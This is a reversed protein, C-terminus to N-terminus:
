NHHRRERNSAPRTAAHVSWISTQSADMVNTHTGRTAICGAVFSLTSMGNCQPSFRYDWMKPLPLSCHIRLDETHSDIPGCITCMLWFRDEGEQTIQWSTTLMGTQTPASHSKCRREKQHVAAWVSQLLAAFQLHFSAVTGLLLWADSNNPGTHMRFDGSLLARVYKSVCPFVWLIWLGPEQWHADFLPERSPNSAVANGKVSLSPWCGTSLLRCCISVPLPQCFSTIERELTSSSVAVAWLFVCLGFCVCVFLLFMCVCSCCESM